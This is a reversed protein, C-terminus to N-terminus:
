VRASDVIMLDAGSASWLVHEVFLKRHGIVARTRYIGRGRKNQLFERTDLDKYSDSIIKISKVSVFKASFPTTIRGLFM